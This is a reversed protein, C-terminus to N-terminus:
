FLCSLTFFIDDVSTQLKVSATTPPNKEKRAAKAKGKRGRGSKQVPRNDRLSSAETEDKDFEKANAIPTSIDEM